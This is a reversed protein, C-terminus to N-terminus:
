GIWALRRLGAFFDEFGIPNLVTTAANTILRINSATGSLALRFLRDGPLLRSPM